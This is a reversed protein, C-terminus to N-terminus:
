KHLPLESDVTSSLHGNGERVFKMPIKLWDSIYEFIFETSSIHKELLLSSPDGTLLNTVLRRYKGKSFYYGWLCMHKSFFLRKVYVIKTCFQDFNVYFLDSFKLIIHM